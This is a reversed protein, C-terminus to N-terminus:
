RMGSFNSTLDMFPQSQYRNEFAIIDQGETLQETAALTKDQDEPHVFDIFPKSKLEELSWGLAQVWSPNLRKFSGDFGAICFMDLSLNFFRDLEAKANQLAEEDQRRETLDTVVGITGAFKGDRFRPTGTALAYVERELAGVMRAEFSEVKGSRHREWAKALMQHDAERTFDFPTKGILDEPEYDLMQAFAPNVFEFRGNDDLVILGQAMTNVLTTVFDNQDRLEQEARQRESVDRVIATFHKRGLIDIQSISGELPFEQGDARLGQVIGTQGMRRQMVGRQGFGQIHDGHVNHFRVPFLLELPQGLAEEARLDFINKPRRISSRLADRITLPFSATWQRNLRDGALRAQSNQLAEEARKRETIEELYINVYGAAPVPAFTALFAQDDYEFEEKAPENAPYATEIVRQWDDPVLSGVELGLSSLFKSGAENSYQFEGDKSVRFVPYPNEAPFRALTEIERTREVVRQELTDRELRLDTYLEANQLANTALIAFRDALKVHRSTFFGKASHICVLIAATQGTSVPVHLASVM